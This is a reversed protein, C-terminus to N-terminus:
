MEKSARWNAEGDRSTQESRPGFGRLRLHLGSDNARRIIVKIGNVRAENVLSFRKTCIWNDDRIVPISTSPCAYLIRPGCMSAPHGVRDGMTGPWFSHFEVSYNPTTVTFLKDKTGHRSVDPPEAARLVLVNTM